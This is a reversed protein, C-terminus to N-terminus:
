QYPHLRMKIIIKVKKSKDLVGELIEVGIGLARNDPKIRKGRSRQKLPIVRSKPILVAVLKEITKL